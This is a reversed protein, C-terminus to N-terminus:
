GRQSSVLSKRNAVFDRITVTSLFDWMRGGVDEMTHRIECSDFQPCEAGDADVCTVIGRSEGFLTMVQAMSMEAPPILLSYGGNKGQFSKVLGGRKLNHFVKALLKPPINHLEAVDKVTVVTNPAQRAMHTLALLAYEVKKTVQFM